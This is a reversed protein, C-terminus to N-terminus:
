HLKLLLALGWALGGVILAVLLQATILGIGFRFGDGYSVRRHQPRVADALFNDRVNNRRPPTKTPVDM